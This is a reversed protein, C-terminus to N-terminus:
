SQTSLSLYSATKVRSRRAKQRINPIDKCVHVIGQVVEVELVVVALQVVDQARIFALEHKLGKWRETRFHLSNDVFKCDVVHALPFHVPRIDKTALYIISSVPSM